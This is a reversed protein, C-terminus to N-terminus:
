LDQSDSADPRNREWVANGRMNGSSRATLIMEETWKDLDPSRVKSVHSGLGRHIGACRQCLFMVIPHSHLSVTAWRQTYEGRLSRRCDACTQNSPQDAVKRLMAMDAVLMQKDADVESLRTTTRSLPLPGVSQPRAKLPIQGASPDGPPSAFGDENESNNAVLIARRMADDFDVSYGSGKRHQSPPASPLSGGIGSAEFSRGGEESHEFVSLARGSAESSRSSQRSRAALAAPHPRHGPVSLSSRTNRVAQSSKSHDKLLSSLDSRSKSQGFGLSTRSQRLAEKLSPKKSIHKSRNTVTDDADGISLSPFGLGVGTESPRISTGYEDVSDRGALQNIDRFSSTGNLVSEVANSIAYIWSKMEEASTAQYMRKGQTPTVIEFATPRYHDSRTPGSLLRLRDSVTVGIQIGEKGPPLLVCTLSRVPPASDVQCAVEISCSCAVHAPLEKSDSVCGVSVEYMRCSSLVMWCGPIVAFIHPYVLCDFRSAAQPSESEWKSKEKRDGGSRGSSVGIGEWVGPSYVLGEKRRGAQVRRTEEELMEAASQDQLDRFTPFKKSGAMTPTPVTATHSIASETATTMISITPSLLGGLPRDGEQTVM